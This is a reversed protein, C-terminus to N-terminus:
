AMLALGDPAGTVQTEQHRAATETNASRGVPETTM